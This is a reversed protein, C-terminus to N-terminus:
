KMNQVIGSSTDSIKKLLNSVMAMTQNFPEMYMQLRMQKEMSIDGLGGRGGSVQDLDNISLENMITDGTDRSKISEIM